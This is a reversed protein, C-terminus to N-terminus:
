LGFAKRITDVYDLREWTFLEVDDMTVPAEGYTADFTKTVTRNTRGMHGYRATEEYIPRRLNLREEIARPRLDFIEKIKEAIEGDTMDVHSRGYTEVCISVPEAVGITKGGEAMAADATAAMLGTRGAGNVLTHGRQAMIKGLTAAAQRYTEPVQGSSAAYVTIQM